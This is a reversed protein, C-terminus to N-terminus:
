NIRVVAKLDHKSHYNWYFSSWLNSRDSNGSGQILTIGLKNDSTNKPIFVDAYLSITDNKFSVEEVTYNQSKSFVL